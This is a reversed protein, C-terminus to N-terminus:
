GAVKSSSSVITCVNYLGLVAAAEVCERGTRQTDSVTGDSAATALLVALVADAGYSV